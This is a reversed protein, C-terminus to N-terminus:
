PSSTGPPTVPSTSPTPLWPENFETSGKITFPGLDYVLVKVRPNWAHLQTIMNGYVPGPSGVLIAHTTAVQQWQAMTRTKPAGNWDQAYLLIPSTASSTSSRYGTM